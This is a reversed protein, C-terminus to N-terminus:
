VKPKVKEASFHTSFIFFGNYFKYIDCHFDLIIYEFYKLMKKIDQMPSKTLLVGGSLM